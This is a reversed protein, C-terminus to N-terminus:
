FPDLKSESKEEEAEIEDRERSLLILANAIAHSLHPLKSDADYVEGNRWAFLHRLMANVYVWRWNSVFRWGEEGYKEAGYEFVKVVTELERFPLLTWNRKREGDREM